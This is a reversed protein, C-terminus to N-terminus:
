FRGTDQHLDPAPFLSPIQQSSHLYMGNILCPPNELPPCDLLPAPFRITWSVACRIKVQVVGTLRDWPIMPLKKMRQPGTKPSKEWWGRQSKNVKQHWKRRTVRLVRGDSGFGLPRPGSPHPGRLALETMREQQKSPFCPPFHQGTKGGGTFDFICQQQRETHKVQQTNLPGAEGILMKVTSYKVEAAM